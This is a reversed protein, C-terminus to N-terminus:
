KKELTVIWAEIHRQLGAVDLIPMLMGFACIVVPTVVMAIAGHVSETAIGKGILRLRTM